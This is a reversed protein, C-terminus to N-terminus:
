MAALNALHARATEKKAAKKNMGTGRGSLGLVTLQGPSMPRPGLDDYFVFIDFMCCNHNSGFVLFMLM